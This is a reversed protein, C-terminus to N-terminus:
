TPMSPAGSRAAVSFFRTAATGSAFMAFTITANACSGARASCAFANVAASGGSRKNFAKSTTLARGSAAAANPFKVM